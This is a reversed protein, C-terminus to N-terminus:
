YATHPDIFNKNCEECHDRFAPILIFYFSRLMAPIDIFEPIYLWPYVPHKKQTKNLGILNSLEQHDAPLRDMNNEFCATMMKTIHIQTAPEMERFADDSQFHRMFSAPNWDNIGYCRVTGCILPSYLCSPHETNPILKLPIAKNTM